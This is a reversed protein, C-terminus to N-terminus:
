VSAHFPSAVTKGDVALNCFVQMITQQVSAESEQLLRRLHAIGGLSVLKKRISEIYNVVDVIYCMTTTGKRVHDEYWQIRQADAIPQDYTSPDRSQFM